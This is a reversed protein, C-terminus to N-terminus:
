LSFTRSNFRGPQHLRHSILETVVGLQCILCFRIVFYSHSSWSGSSQTSLIREIEKYIETESKGNGISDLEAVQIPTIKGPPAEKVPCLQDGTMHTALDSTDDFKSLCRYCFTCGYAHASKIHARANM